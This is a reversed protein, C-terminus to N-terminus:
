GIQVTSQISLSFKKSLSHNALKVVIEKIRRAYYNRHYYSKRFTRNTVFMKIFTKTDAKKTLHYLDYRIDKM